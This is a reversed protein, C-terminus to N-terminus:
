VLEQELIPIYHNEKIFTQAKEALATKDISNELLNNIATIFDKITDALIFTEKDKLGIGESGISTSILPLGNIIANISKIKVGAGHLMPNIFISSEAYLEDLIKKDLILELQDYQNFLKKLKKKSVDGSSGAIILKYNINRKCVEKHVNKIYWLLGEINNPMFLSGIFLVNKTNLKQQKISTLNIPAPLHIGKKDSFEEEEKKSIFWVRDVQKYIIESYDKFKRADLSYYTKRLLSETSRSLNKFYLSENNHSRLVIKRTKLTKNNLIEGVYDSELIVYDYQKTLKVKNLEKRSLVQLPKKHFLYKLKNIRRVFFLEKVYQKVIDLDKRQPINKHTYILDISHGLEKIGKIKEWIDYAGGHMVPYPFFGSVILINLKKM